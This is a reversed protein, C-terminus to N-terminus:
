QTLTTVTRFTNGSVTNGSVGNVGVGADTIVNGTVTNNPQLFLYIGSGTGSIANNEFKIAGTEGSTKMSAGIATNSIHNGSVTIGVCDPFCFFGFGTEFTGFGVITNDSVTGSVTTSVYVGTSCNGTTNSSVVVTPANAYVCNPIISSGSLPVYVPALTTAKVTVSTSTTLSIGTGDFNRVSSNEVTVTSAASSTVPTGSNCYGGSGNSINQNRLAVEDLTGSSGSDFLIGTLSPGFDCSTLTNTGDVGINILTVDTAKIDIQTFQGSTYNSPVTVVVAGANGATYLEGRLTLPTTITIQEAYTGPCVEITAGSPAASVAAQITNYQTLAGTCSAAGIAVSQDVILTAARAREAGFSALAIVAAACLVAKRIPNGM